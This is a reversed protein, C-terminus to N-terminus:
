QAIPVRTLVTHREAWRIVAESRGNVLERWEQDLANIIGMGRQRHSASTMAPSQWAPTTPHTPRLVSSTARRLQTNDTALTLLHVHHRLPELGSRGAQRWRVCNNIKVRQIGFARAIIVLARPSGMRSAVLDILHRAMM